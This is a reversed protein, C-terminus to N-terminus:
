RHTPLAQGIAEREARGREVWQHIIENIAALRAKVAEVRQTALHVRHQVVVSLLSQLGSFFTMAQVANVQQAEARLQEVDQLSIETSEDPVAGALRSLKETLKPLSADVARVFAEESESMRDLYGQIVDVGVQQVGAKVQIEMQDMMTNVLNRECPGQGAQGALLRRLAQLYEEPSVTEQITAQSETEASADFSVGTARTLAAHIQGLQKCLSLFDQVSFSKQPDKLADIFPLAAFSAQEVEPLNITAASGGLNTVGGTLIGILASHREPGPGQQLEDLAVHINQLWEQAEQVFLDVLEKQFDDSTDGAM